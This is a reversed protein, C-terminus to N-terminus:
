SANKNDEEIVLELTTNYKDEKALCVRKQSKVSKKTVKKKGKNESILGLVPEQTAM